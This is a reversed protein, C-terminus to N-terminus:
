KGLAKRQNRLFKRRDLISRRNKWYYIYRWEKDNVKKAKHKIPNALTNKWRKKDYVKDYERRQNKKKESLNDRYKQDRKRKGFIRCSNSCYYKRIAKIPTKCWKCKNTTM